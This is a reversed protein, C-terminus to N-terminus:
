DGGGGAAPTEEAVQHRLILPMQSAAFVMSLPLMGFVKFSVWFDTSFNRWVFENIVALVVFFVAWRWSLTRWGEDSINFVGGMILKLPNRRLVLGIFLTAALFLNAVTPRVKIFVEDDLAVTLTGFVLVFVFGVMPMVPWRREKVQAVVVSVATALMFAVTAAMIGAQQNAIFFVVLPGAETLLRILHNPPAKAASPATESM